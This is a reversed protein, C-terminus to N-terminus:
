EAPKIKKRKVAEQFFMTAIRGTIVSFILSALIFLAKVMPLLWLALFVSLPFLIFYTLDTRQVGGKLRRLKLYISILLFLGVAGSWIFDHKMGLEFGYFNTNIVGPFDISQYLIKLIKEGTIGQLFVQYLLVLVLGQIGLVVAKAWPKVRRRKLVKRIEQKKIVQDNQYVKDIEKIEKYLEENKVRNYENVLSFPLLATRLIITLYVVAWGFNSDTWNNYIWILLNFMPQYLLDNWITLM